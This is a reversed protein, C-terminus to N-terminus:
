PVTAQAQRLTRDSQQDGQRRGSSAAGGEVDPGGLVVADGKDYTGDAVGDALAM